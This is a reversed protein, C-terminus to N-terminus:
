LDHREFSSESRYVIKLVFTRRSIILKLILWLHFNPSKPSSKTGIFVLWLGGEFFFFGVFKRLIQIFFICILGGGGFFNWYIKALVYRFRNRNRGIPKRYINNRNEIFFFIFFFGNVIRTPNRSCHVRTSENNWTKARTEDDHLQAKRSRANSMRM